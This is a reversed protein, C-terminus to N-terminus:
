GIHSIIKYINEKTHVPVIKKAENSMEFEPIHTQHKIIEAGALQAKDIIKKAINIKGSHNIGLEVIVLPKWGQGIKRKAIQFNKM